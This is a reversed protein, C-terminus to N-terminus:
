VKHSNEAKHIYDSNLCWRCACCVAHVSCQVPLYTYVLAACSQMHQRTGTWAVVSPQLLNQYLSYRACAPRVCPAPVVAQSSFKQEVISPFVM